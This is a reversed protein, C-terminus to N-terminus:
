LLEGEEIDVYELTPVRYLNIEKLIKEKIDGNRVFVESIAVTGDGYVDVKFTSALIEGEKRVFPSVIMNYFNKQTISHEKLNGFGFVMGFLALDRRHLHGSFMVLVDEDNRRLVEMVRDRDWKGWKNGWQFPYHRYELYVEGQDLNVIHIYDRFYSKRILKGEVKSMKFLGFGLNRMYKRAEESFIPEYFERVDEFWFDRLGPIYNQLPRLAFVDHNGVVSVYPLDLEWTHRMLGRSLIDSSLDGLNVVYDVNSYSEIIKELTKFTKSREESIDFPSKSEGLLEWHVDGFLLISLVIDDAM